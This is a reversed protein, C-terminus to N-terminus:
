HNACIVTYSTNGATAVANSEEVCVADQGSLIDADALLHFSASVVTSVATPITDDLDADFHPGPNTLDLQAAVTEDTGLYGLYDADLIPHFDGAMAAGALLVTAIAITTILTTKM